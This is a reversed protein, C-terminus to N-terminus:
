CGEFTKWVECVLYKITGFFFQLGGECVKTLFLKWEIFNTAYGNLGFEIVNSVIWVKAMILNPMEDFVEYGFQSKADWCCSNKGM